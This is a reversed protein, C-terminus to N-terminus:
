YEQNEDLGPDVEKHAQADAEADQKKQDETSEKMKAFDPDEKRILEIIAEAKSGAYDECEMLTNAVDLIPNMQRIVEETIEDQRVHGFTNVLPGVHAAFKAPLGSLGGFNVYKHKGEADLKKSPVVNVSCANGICDDFGAAEGKPDIAKLFKTMFAKDGKKLPFSKHIYLPTTGDEEFDEDDKLEFIALVQHAPKKMEGNFSERYMGLHVLGALRASHDGPEPMKFSGLVDQVQDTGYDFSRTEDAM